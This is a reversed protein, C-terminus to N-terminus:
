GDALTEKNVPISPSRPVLERLATLVEPDRVENDSTCEAMNPETGVTFPGHARRVAGDDDLIVLYPQHDYVVRASPPHM